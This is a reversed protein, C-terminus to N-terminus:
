GAPTPRAVPSHADFFRRLADEWPAVRAGTAFEYKATSLASYAPRKAPRPHDETRIPVISRTAVPGCRRLREVISSAFAYRSCVGRNAFHYVGFDPPRTTGAATAGGDACLLRLLARALDDAFTPSGFQDAVIRLEAHDQALRAVTSVFSAGGEGYLGSTRVLYFRRLDSALVAREGALKSRGYASLPAPPDDEVYPTNKRGDFVFDTSVHVLTARGRVASVTLHGVGAGNVATARPEREECGDVDTDAACNIIIRPGIRDLVDRM